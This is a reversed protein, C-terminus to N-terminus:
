PASTRERAVGDHDRRAAEVRRLIRDLERARATRSLGQVDPPDAPFLSQGRAKRRSMESLFSGLGPADDAEVGYGLGQRTVVMELASGRDTLAVIPKRSRAYEFIKARVALSAISGCADAVLLDAAATISDVEAHPVRGRLSVCDRVDSADIIALQPPSIAGLMILEVPCGGQRALGIAKVLTRLAGDDQFQGAHALTLPGTGSPSPEAASGDYGNMISTMKDRMGPYRAIYYELFAENSVVVCDAARIIRRELWLGCTEHLPTAFRRVGPWVYPDRFDCVWARGAARALVWAVLHSGLPLGCSYVVSTTRRLPWGAAVATFMWTFALDPLTFWRWVNGVITGKPRRLSPESASTTSTATPTARSAAKPSVLWKRLRAGIEAAFDRAELRQVTSPVSMELSDDRLSPSLSRRHVTLVTVTWGLGTLERAFGATRLSGVGGVPPFTRSVFLVPLGATSNTM